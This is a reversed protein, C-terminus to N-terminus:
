GKEIVRVVRAVDVVQNHVCACNSCTPRFPFRNHVDEISIFVIMATEERDQNCGLCHFKYSVIADAMGPSQIVYLKGTASM